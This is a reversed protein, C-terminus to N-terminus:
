VIVEFRYFKIVVCEILEAIPKVQAITLDTAIPKQQIKGSYALKYKTIIKNNM